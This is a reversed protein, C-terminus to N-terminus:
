LSSTTQKLKKRISAIQDMDRALENPHAIRSRLNTLEASLADIQARGEIFQAEAAAPPLAERLEGATHALESSLYEIHGKAYQDTARQQRVYEIFTNTEAAISAASRLKSQLEDQSIPKQRSCSALSALALCVILSAMQVCCLHLLTSLHKSTFEAAAHELPNARPQLAGLRRGGFVLAAFDLAHSIQDSKTGCLNEYWEEVHRNLRHHVAQWGLEHHHREINSRCL